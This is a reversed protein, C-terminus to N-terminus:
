ERKCILSPTVLADFEIQLEPSRLPSAEKRKKLSGKRSIKFSVMTKNITSTRRADDYHEQAVGITHLCPSRNLVYRIRIMSLVIM